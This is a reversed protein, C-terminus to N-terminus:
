TEEPGSSVRLWPISTVLRGFHRTGEEIMKRINSRANRSGSVNKQEQIEIPRECRNYFVGTFSRHRRLSSLRQDAQRSPTPEGHGNDASARKRVQLPIHSQLAQSVRTIM